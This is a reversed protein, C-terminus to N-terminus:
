LSYMRSPKMSQSDPRCHSRAEGMSVLRCLFMEEEADEDEEDDDDEDDDDEDDNSSTFEESFSLAM